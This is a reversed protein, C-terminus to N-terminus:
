AGNDRLIKFSNYNVYPEGVDWNIGHTSVGQIQIEKGYQDVLKTGKVNLRGHAGGTNKQLSSNRNKQGCSNCKCIFSNFM